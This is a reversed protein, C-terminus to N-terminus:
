LRPLQCFRSFTVISFFFRFKSSKTQKHYRHDFYLRQAFMYKDFPNGGQSGIMLQM